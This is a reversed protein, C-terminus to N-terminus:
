MGFHTRRVAAVAEPPGSVDVQAAAQRGFLYLLLEGSPGSLGLRRSAQDLRARKDTGGVPDRARSRAAPSETAAVGAFTEGYLLMWQLRSAARDMVIREVFTRMTFLSSTSIRWPAFGDLASSGPLHARGSGRLSGRSTKASPWDPGVGSPSGNSPSLYFSVLALLSTANECCLTPPSITLLGARSCHPVSPGLEDLLECLDLREQTDLPGEAMGRLIRPEFRWSPRHDLLLTVFCALSM